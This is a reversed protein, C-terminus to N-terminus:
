DSYGEYTRGWRDDRVVAITPAFTWEQGGVRIEQATIAGIKGLLSPNRTAGLGINHPFVTAGPINNHGHVADTGWIMPIFFSDGYAEKSAEYFEDALAVWASAPSRNDGNPASNGGNLISGLPYTKVDEPTISGVDAQIIQGVKQRMTMQAMIETIRAEIAPDLGVPSEVKPWISPDVTGPARVEAPKNAADFSVSSGDAYLAVLAVGVIVTWLNFSSSTKFNVDGLALLREKAPATSASSAILATVMCLLFVVWIRNVFSFEPMAFKFVLSVVVSVILATFAGTSNTKPFFMGLLFVAVVGPAIFGTYEQVTQFASEFGGLFPQAAIVAIVMAAAAVLRGVGVYHTESENPKMMSKYVDMTFITSISNVMSALSSVIAAILAAFILGRFGAPMLGMVSPYTRDTKESLLDGDLAGFEPTALMVAAPLDKAGLARQIIYQNFGWYNLHLIWLGGLLTWIGPMADYGTPNETKDFIMDFKDPLETYLRGFGDTVLIVVQIIDTL